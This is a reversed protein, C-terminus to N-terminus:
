HGQPRSDGFTHGSNIVVYRRPNLPNPYILVPVNAAASFQNGGIRITEATWRLPLKPLIRAILSNSGPDGFLILNFRAIDDDTIKRDEKIPIDGRFYKAFDKGFQDLTRQAYQTVAMSTAMGTPRVCLFPEMFADDIPGQMGHQKRLGSAPSALAWEGDSKEFSQAKGGKFKKGDLVVAGPAVLRLIAVNKTHVVTEKASRDADVEAREYQRDLSNVTVWYCQEYRPTWTVFRIHDPNADM